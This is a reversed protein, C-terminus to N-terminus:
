LSKRGNSIEMELEYKIQKQYEKVEEELTKETSGIFSKRNHDYWKRVDKGDPFLFESQNNNHTKLKPLEGNKQKIIGFLMQKKELPTLKKYGFELQISKVEEELSLESDIKMGKRKRYWDMVDTGDKFTYESNGGNCEKRKPLKGEKQRIIQFLYLKKDYDTQAIDLTMCLQNFEEELTINSAIKKNRNHHYFYEMSTGDPFTGLGMIVVKKTSDYRNILEKFLLEKKQELSCGFVGNKQQIEQVVQLLTINDRIKNNMNRDYWVRMFTGDSFKEGIEKGRPQPPIIGNNNEVFNLFMTVKEIFTLGKGFSRKVENIIQELTKGDFITEKQDVYWYYVDTGDAFQEKGIKPLNGKLKKVINILEAKKEEKDTFVIGLSMLLNRIEDKLLLDSCVKKEYNYAMFGRLTSGNIYKEDTPWMQRTKAIFKFLIEKKYLDSLYIKSMNAEIYEKSIIEPKVIIEPIQKITGITNEITCGFESFIENAHQIRKMVENYFEEDSLVGVSRILEHFDISLVVSYKMAPCIGNIIKFLIREYRDCLDMNNFVSNAKLMDIKKQLSDTNIGIEHLKKILMMIRIYTNITEKPASEDRNLQYGKSTFYKKKKEDDFVLEKKPSNCYEYMIADLMYNVIKELREFPYGMKEFFEIIDMKNRKINLSIELPICNWLTTGGGQRVQLIHELSLDKQEIVEGSYPSILKGINEGDQALFYDIMFTNAFYYDLNSFLGKRITRSNERLITDRNFNPKSYM